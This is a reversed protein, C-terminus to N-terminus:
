GALRKDFPAWAGAAFADDLPAEAVKNVYNSLTKYSIGVIVELLQAKTYGAALFATTEEESLWGRQEVLTSVTTRLAELRTDTIPEDNRIAEIIDAPINQMGAVVSHAAMCYRCENFRSATLIVVQRETPSFSSEEFIKGIAMYAQILAPSEAMVGLLNPIFGYAKEANALLEASAPSATEKTHVQYNSM